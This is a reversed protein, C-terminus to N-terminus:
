PSSDSVSPAHNVSCLHSLFINGFVHAGGYKEWIERWHTSNREEPSLKITVATIWQPAASQLRPSNRTLCTIHGHRSLDTRSMDPNITVHWFTDYCALIFRWNDSHMTFHWSTNYFTMTYRWMDPNITVQWCTNGHHITVYWSTNDCTLIYQWIDRHIKPHCSIDDCTLIYRWM